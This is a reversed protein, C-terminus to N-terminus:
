PNAETSAEVHVISPMPANPNSTRELMNKTKAGQGLNARHSRASSRASAVPLLRLASTEDSGIRKAWIRSLAHVMGGPMTTRHRAPLRRPRLGVARAQPVDKAERRLAAVCLDYCREPTLRATKM